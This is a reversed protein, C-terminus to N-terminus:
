GAANHLRAWVVAIIGIRGESVAEKCWAGQEDKAYFELLGGVRCDRNEMWTKGSIVGPCPWMTFHRNRSDHYVREKM